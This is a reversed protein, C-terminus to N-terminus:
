RPSRWPSSCCGALAPGPSIGITRSFEPDFTTVKLEKWLATILALNFLAVAGLVVISRAIEYGAIEFTQFPAFAIEGYSRELGPRPARRRAYRTVGIV